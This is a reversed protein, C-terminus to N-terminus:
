GGLGSKEFTKMIEESNPETCLFDLTEANSVADAIKMLIDMHEDGKAAIGIVLKAINGNGFDVGQPYQMFVIGTKLVFKKAENTGHPIAVSSGIYTTAVNERDAMAPIYGAEILGADKLAQGAKQIAEWKDVPAQETFIRNVTLVGTEKNKDKKFFMETEGEKNQYTRIMEQIIPSNIFDDVGITVATSKIQDLLLHHTIILDADEPIEEIAGFVVEIAPNDLGKKFKKAGMASSGMGADCAFVIKQVGEPLTIADETVKKEKVFLATLLFSVLTSALIAIIISFQDGKASLALISIISGPSPTATLGVNFLQFLINSTLGGIIVPIIILPNALVFPFYVEHIGGLFHIIAVSPATQKRIGKGFSAYALLVGLGPGPNTELLFLLSKGHEATEMMGMPSLIGHNIINNFFLIKAPEIVISSFPIIKNVILVRLVQGALHNFSNMIPGIIYFSLLVMCLGLIGASFNTVLMEFGSPIRRDIASDFKKILYGSLPGVIMAGAFMPVESGVTLGFTVAAGIIGGRIDYVLKGGSYGILLPLLYKSMPAVLVALRENPFWGTPIFLATLLGWIIFVSINPLIMQSLFKGVRIYIKRM